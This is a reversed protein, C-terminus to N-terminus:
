AAIKSTLFVDSGCLDALGHRLVVQLDLDGTRLTEVALDAARLRHEIDSGYRRVHDEQFYKSVREEPTSLPEDSTKAGWVPVQIVALGNPKLVRRIERMAKHDDTVHELIHSCWVLDFTDDAFSMNCIDEKHMVTPVLLDATHYDDTQPALWQTMCPEPAFHLVKGLRAPLRKALLMYALRHREQSKCRPCTADFRFFQGQNAPEFQFGTWNCMPCQRTHQFNLGTLVARYSRRAVRDLLSM